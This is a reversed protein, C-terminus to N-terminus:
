DPVCGNVPRINRQRYERIHDIIDSHMNGLHAPSYKVLLEGRPSILVASRNHGQIHGTSRDVDYSARYNQATNLIQDKDGSLGQFYFNGRSPDDDTYRDAFSSPPDGSARPSIVMIADIDEGLTMEAFSKSQFINLADTACGQGPYAEFPTAFYAIAFHKQEYPKGTRYDVLDGLKDCVDRYYEIYNKEQALADLPSFATALGTALGGKIFDRRKM